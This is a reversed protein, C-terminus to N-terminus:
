VLFKSTTLLSIECGAINFTALNSYSHSLQQAGLLIAESKDPNLAM